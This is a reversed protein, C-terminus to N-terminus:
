PKPTAHHSLPASTLRLPEFGLNESESMMQQMPESSPKQPRGVRRLHKFLHRMIKELAPALASRRFDRRAVALAASLVTPPLCSELAYGTSIAAEMALTDVVLAIGYENRKQLQTGEFAGHNLMWFGLTAPNVSEPLPGAYVACFCQPFTREFEDLSYELRRTERMSLRQSTDTIRPLRVWDGGLLSRVEACCFGCGGCFSADTKLESACKPCLVSM